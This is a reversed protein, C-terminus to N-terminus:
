SAGLAMRRGRRRRGAPLLVVPVPELPAERGRLHSLLRHDAHLRQRRWSGFGQAGRLNEPHKGVCTTIHPDRKRNDRISAAAVPSTKHADTRAPVADPSVSSWFFCACYARTRVCTRFSSERMSISVSRYLWTRQCRCTSRPSIRAAVARSSASCASSSRWCCLRAWSRISCYLPPSGRVISITRSEDDSECIVLPM